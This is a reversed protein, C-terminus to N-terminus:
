ATLTTSKADRVKGNRDVVVIEAYKNTSTGTIEVGLIPNGKSDKAQTYGADAFTTGITSATIASSDVKYFVKEDKYVDLGSAVTKYGTKNTLTLATARAGIQYIFGKRSNLVFADFLMRFEVLWGNVGVPNDHIKTDKLVTPSVMARKPVILAKVGVPMRKGDVRVIASGDVEGMQGKILMKQSLDGNRVFASDLKLFNYYEPVLFTTLSGNDIGKENIAQYGALLTEYANGKAVVTTSDIMTSEVTECYIAFRYKDVYPVIMEDNQIKIEESVKNMMMQQTKNGRDVTFTYSIDQNMNETQLSDGVETPTGYRSLGERSYFNLPTKDISYINITKVGDFDYDKNLNAGTFSKIAISRDIKSSFKSALNIM